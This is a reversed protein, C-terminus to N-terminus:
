ALLEQDQVPKMQIHISAKGSTGCGTCILYTDTLKESLTKKKTHSGFRRMLKHGCMPCTLMPERKNTKTGM